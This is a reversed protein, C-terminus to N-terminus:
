ATVFPTSASTGTSTYTGPQGGGGSASCATSASRRTAAHARRHHGGVGPARGGSRGQLLAEGEELPEAHHVLHASRVVSRTTSTSRCGSRAASVRRSLVSTGRSPPASSLRRSRTAPAAQCSRSAASINPSVKVPPSPRRSSSSSPTSPAGRRLSATSPARVASTQGPALSGPSLSGARPVPPAAPGPGAVSPAARPARGPRRPRGRGQRDRRWVPPPPRTRRRRDPADGAPLPAAHPRHRRMLLWPEMRSISAAQVEQMTQARSHGAQHM